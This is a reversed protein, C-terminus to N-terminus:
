FGKLYNRDCHKKIMKAYCERFVPSNKCKMFSKSAMSLQKATCTYQNDKFPEKPEPIYAHLSIALTILLYKM